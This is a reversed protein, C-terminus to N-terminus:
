LAPHALPAVRWCSPECPLTLLPPSEGVPLGLWQFLLRPTTAYFVVSILLVCSTLDVLKERNPSPFM